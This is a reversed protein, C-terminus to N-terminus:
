RGGSNGRLWYAVTDRQHRTLWIAPADGIRLLASGDTHAEVRLPVGVESGGDAVVDAVGPLRVSPVRLEPIDKRCTVVSVVGYAQRQWIMQCRSRSDHWNAEVVCRTGTENITVPELGNAGPAIM